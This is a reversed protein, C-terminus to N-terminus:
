SRKKRRTAISNQEIALRERLLTRVMFHDSVCNTGKMTRITLISMTNRKSGKESLDPEEELKQYRGLLKVYEKITLKYNFCTSKVIKNCTITLSIM